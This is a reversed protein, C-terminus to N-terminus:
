PLPGLTGHGSGDFTLQRKAGLPVSWSELTAPVPDGVTESGDSRVVQYAGPVMHIVQQPRGHVSYAWSAYGSVLGFGVEVDYVNSDFAPLHWAEDSYSITMVDPFALDFRDDRAKVPVTSQNPAFDGKRLVKAMWLVPLSQGLSAVATSAITCQGWVRRLGGTVDGEPVFTLDLTVGPDAVADVVLLTSQLPTFAALVRLFILPPLTGLLM